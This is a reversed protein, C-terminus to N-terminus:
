FVIKGEKSQGPNREDKTFRYVKGNEKIMVTDIVDYGPNFYEKAPTFTYFDRTKAYMIRSHPYGLRDATLIPVGKNMSSWKLSPYGEGIFYAFLYGTLEEEEPMEKVHAEFERTAINDSETITATLVVRQDGTGHVPSTVEGTSTIIAPESSWVIVSGNKGEQPLALHGRVDELNYVVIMEADLAAKSIEETVELSSNSELNKSCM